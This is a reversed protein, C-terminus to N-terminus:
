IVGQEWKSATFKWCSPKVSYIQHLRRNEKVGEATNRSCTENKSFITKM